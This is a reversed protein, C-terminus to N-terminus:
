SAILNMLELYCIPFKARERQMVTLGNENEKM